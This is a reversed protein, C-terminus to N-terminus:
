AAQHVEDPTRLGLSTHLRRTNYLLVAQAVARRVQKTNGFTGGLEYEQKLIGNLREAQANEYCHNEQTMSIRVKRRTLKRVYDRCCYQIGRDSHHIPRAGQPLQRLAKRLAKLSGEVCLSDSVEWGVIKRSHVDHILSLYMFKEETRIYTIDSAWAQHPGSLELEKLLNSYTRFGHKSDTTRCSRRREILLNNNRLVEFFRDRGIRIGMAKFEKDYARYLKRTGIKPQICRERRVLECIAQEDVRRRQRGKREKYYNQRSMGVTACLGTM